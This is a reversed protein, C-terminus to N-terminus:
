KYVSYAVNNQDLLAKFSASPGYVGNRDKAFAYKLNKIVGADRLALYRKLQDVAQGSNNIGYKAEIVTKSDADWLDALSKGTCSVDCGPPNFLKQQVLGPTEKALFNEFDKEGGFATKEVVKEARAIADSEVGAIKSESAAKTIVESERAANEIKAAAEGGKAADVGVKAFKTFALGPVAAALSLGADTYDGQVAYWTANTTAAGLGIVDFPPPAFTSLSLIDLVTHGWHEIWHWLAKAVAVVCHGYDLPNLSCGSGKKQSKALGQLVLSDAMPTGGATKDVADTVKGGGDIASSLATLTATMGVNDGHSSTPFHHEFFLYHAFKGLPHDSGDYSINETGPQFNAFAWQSAAPNATLAATLALIGDTLYSRSPSPAYKADDLTDVQWGSDGNDHDFTWYASTAAKLFDVSWYGRSLVLLLNQKNAADQDARQKSTADSAKADEPYLKDPTTTAEIFDTTWSAPLARSGTGHTALAFTGALDTLELDYAKTDVGAKFPASSGTGAVSALADGLARPTTQSTFYYAFDTQGRHAALQKDLAVLDGKQLAQVAASADRRIQWQRDHFISLQTYAVVLGAVMAVALVAALAPVWRPRKKKRFTLDNPHAGVYGPVLEWGGAGWRRILRGQRSPRKRKTRYEYRPARTTGGHRRRWRVAAL